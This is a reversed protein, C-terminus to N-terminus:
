HRGGYFARIVGAMRKKEGYDLKDIEFFLEPCDCDMVSDGEILYGMPVSLIKSIWYLNRVTCATDGREIGYLTSESIELLSALEIVSMGRKERSVRIRLGIRKRLSLDSEKTTRCYKEM